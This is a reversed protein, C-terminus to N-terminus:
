KAAQNNRPIQDECLKALCLELQLLKERTALEAQEIRFSIWYTAAMILFALGNAIMMLGLLRDAVSMGVMLFFVMMLVTFTWVMAAIRRNDAKLDISGRWSMRGAVAAWALGFLTGVSLAVRALIPLTPETL